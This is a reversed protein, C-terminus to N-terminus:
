VPSGLFAARAILLAEACDVPGAFPPLQELLLEAGPVRERAEQLRHEGAGVKGGRVGVIKPWRNWEILVLDRELEHVWFLAEIQGARRALGAATRAGGFTPPQEMYVRVLIPSCSREYNLISSIDNLAGSVRELWSATEGWIPWLWAKDLSCLAIGGKKGPDIGIGFVRRESDPVTNVTKM